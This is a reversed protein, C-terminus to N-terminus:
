SARQISPPSTRGPTYILLTSSDVSRTSHRCSGTSSPSPLRPSLSAASPCTQNLTLVTGDGAITSTLMCTFYPNKDISEQYRKGRFERLVELNYNATSADPQMDYLTKFQSMVLKTNTGYQNLDSKLPSSDAEYNNHSGLIGTHPQGGISWQTLTGDVVAGYVALFTGLDPAMGFVTQTANIFQEITAIGNHPLYNHNAM